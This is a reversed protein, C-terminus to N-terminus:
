LETPAPQRLAFTLVNAELVGAGVPRSVYQSHSKLPQRAKTTTSGHSKKNNGAKFGKGSVYLSRYSTAHAYQDSQRVAGALDFPAKPINLL